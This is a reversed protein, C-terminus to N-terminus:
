VSTLVKKSGLLIISKRTGREYLHVCSCVMTFFNVAMSISTCLLIFPPIMNFKNHHKTLIIAQWIQETTLILEM